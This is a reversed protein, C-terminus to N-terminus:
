TEVGVHSKCIEPFVVCGKGSGRRSPQLCSPATPSALAPGAAPQYPWLVRRYFVTVCFPYRVTQHLQTISFAPSLCVGPKSKGLGLSIAACLPLVGRSSSCPTREGKGLKWGMVQSRKWGLGPPDQGADGSWRGERAAKSECSPACQKPHQGCVTTCNICKKLLEDYYFGARTNCDMSETPPSPSSCPTRLM